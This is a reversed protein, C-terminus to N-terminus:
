RGRVGWLTAGSLLSVSGKTAREGREGGRVAQEEARDEEGEACTEFALRATKASQGM